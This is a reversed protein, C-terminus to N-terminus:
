FKSAIWYWVIWFICMFIAIQIYSIITKTNEASQESRLKERRLEIDEYEKNWYEETTFSDYIFDDIQEDLNKDINNNQM